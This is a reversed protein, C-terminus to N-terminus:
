KLPPTNNHVRSILINPRGLIWLFGRGYVSSPYDCRDSSPVASIVRSVISRLAEYLGTGEDPLAGKNKRAWIAYFRGHKPAYPDTISRSAQKAERENATITPFDKVQYDSKGCGYCGKYCSPVDWSAETAKSFLRDLRQVSSTVKLEPVMRMRM